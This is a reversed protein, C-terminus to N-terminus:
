KPTAHALKVQLFQITFMEEHYFLLLLLLLLLLFTMISAQDVSGTGPCGFSCLSVGNRFFFFAFM